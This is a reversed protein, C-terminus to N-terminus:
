PNPSALQQFILDLSGLAAINRTPYWNCSCSAHFKVFPVIQYPHPDQPHFVKRNVSPVHVLAKLWTTGSKYANVLFIENECAQFHQCVIFRLGKGEISTPQISM